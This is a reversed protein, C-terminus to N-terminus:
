PGIVAPGPVAAQRDTGVGRELVREGGHAIPDFRTDGRFPHRCSPPTARGLHARHACPRLVLLPIGHVPRRPQDDRGPRHLVAPEVDCRSRRAPEVLLQPGEVEAPQIREPEIQSRGRQKCVAGLLLPEAIQRRDHAVLLPPALEEALRARARVQRRQGGPGLAVPVLPDDVALLHPRCPRVEGRVRHQQGPGVDVRGFRSPM